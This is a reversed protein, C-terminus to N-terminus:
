LPNKGGKKEFIITSPGHTRAFKIMEEVDAPSDVLIRDNDDDKYGFKSFNQLFLTTTISHLYDLTLNKMDITRAYIADNYKFKLRIQSTPVQSNDPSTSVQNNDPSTSVQDPSTPVDNKPKELFTITLSLLGHNDRLAHEIAKEFDNNFKIRMVHTGVIYNIVCRNSQILSGVCSFGTSPLHFTNEIIINLESMSIKNTCIHYKEPIYVYIDFWGDIQVIKLAMQTTEDM